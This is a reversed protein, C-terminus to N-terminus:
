CSGTFILVAGFSTHPLTTKTILLIANSSVQCSVSSNLPKGFFLPLNSWQKSKNMATTKRLTM